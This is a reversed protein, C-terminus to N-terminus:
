AGREPTWVADPDIGSLAKYTYSLVGVTLAGVVMSWAYGFVSQFLLLSDMQEFMRLVDVKQANAGLGALPSTVISLVVAVVVFPILTVVWVGIIRWFNGQTLNWSDGFKYRGELVTIPLVLELRVAVYILAGWALVMLVVLAPAAEKGLAVLAIGFVLSLVIVAPVLLIVPLLAFLLETKGFAFHVFRGPQRDGMLIVRHLAVAVISTGAITVVFNLIQWRWSGGSAAAVNGAELATRMAAFQARLVFHQVVTVVLLPLWSLRLITGADRLLFQYARGATEFVPLKHM